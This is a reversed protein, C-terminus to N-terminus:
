EFRLSQAPNINAAHISRASVALLATFLVLIGSILFIWWGIDTQYAFGQLWETIFYNAVPIAIVLAILILSLYSRCLLFLIRLASAGFAKRIGIEKTRIESTYAAIGYLGMCSILVALISFIKFITGMKDESIYLNNLNEDIFDYHFLTGPAIEKVTKEIHDLAHRNQEGSLKVILTSAMEPRYTLVLPEIDQRLSAFNFDKMVGVIQGHTGFTINTAMTGVPEDLDLVHATTENIIFAGSSDNVPDFNRGAILEINMAPIFGEDSRFFRMLQRNNRDYERGDPLLFEVSIINGMLNSTAGAQIIGPHAVLQDYIFSRNSLFRYNFDGYTYVAVINEKDFGLDKNRMYQLQKYIVISSIIMFIAIMFQLVILVKRALSLSSRPIQNIKVAEAIKFGSIFFAPYGGSLIGIILVLAAILYLHDISLLQNITFNLNTINNFVPLLLGCPVLAILAALLTFFYAEFIFQRILQGKFAGTVKRIGVEKSRKLSQTIYINIFNASAVLIILLALGGFTYIYHIDSNAGMEQERHSTLHIGAIPHLEFYNGSKHIIDEQNNDMQLYNVQFDFLRSQAAKVDVQNKFKLYTYMVMWTRSQTWDGPLYKYFTPMSVLYEIKLHSNKPFDEIVATIEFIQADETRGFAFKVSKGVPDTEGFLTEALSETLVLTHPRELAHDRDGTILRRSFIDIISQDALYGNRVPVHRDDLIMINMASQFHTLRGGNKIQPIYKIIEECAPPSSKAWQSSALRYILQHDPYSKEYSIEAKIYLFIFLSVAIGLALGSLNILSNQKHRFINRLITIFYNKLM